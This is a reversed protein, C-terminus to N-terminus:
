VLWGWVAEVRGIAVIGVLRGAWAGGGVGGERGLILRTDGGDSPQVAPCRLIVIKGAGEFLFWCRAETGVGRLLMGEWALCAADETEERGLMGWGLVQCIEGDGEQGAQQLSEHGGVWAKKLEQRGSQLQRHKDSNGM